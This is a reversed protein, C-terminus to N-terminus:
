HFGASGPRGARGGTGPGGSPFASRRRLRRRPALSREGERPRLGAHGGVAGREARAGAVGRGEVVVCRRKRATHKQVAAAQGGGPGPTRLPPNEFGAEPRAKMEQCGPLGPAGVRVPRAQQMVDRDVGMRRRGAIQQAGSFGIRGQRRESRFQGVLPGPQQRAKVPQGEVVAAHQERQAHALQLRHQARLAELGVAEEEVTEARRHGRGVRELRHRAEGALAGAERGAGVVVPHAMRQHLVAELEIRAGAAQAAHERGGPRHPAALRHAFADIRGAMARHDAGPERTSRDRGAECPATPPDRHEVRGVRRGRARRAQRDPQQCRM